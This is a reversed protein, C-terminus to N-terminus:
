HSTYISFSMWTFSHDKRKTKLKGWSKDPKKRETHASSGRFLALTSATTHSKGKPLFNPVLISMATLRGSMRVSISLYSNRNTIIGFTLTIFWLFIKCIYNLHKHQKTPKDITNWILCGRNFPLSYLYQISRETRQALTRETPPVRTRRRLGWNDQRSFFSWVCSPMLDFETWSFFGWVSICSQGDTAADKVFWSNPWLWM